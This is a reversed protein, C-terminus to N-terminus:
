KHFEIIDLDNKLKDQQETSLEKNDIYQLILEKLFHDKMDLLFGYDQGDAYGYEEFEQKVKSRIYKIYDKANLKIKRKKSELNNDFYFISDMVNLFLLTDICFAQYPDANWSPQENTTSYLINAIRIDIDTHNRYEIIMSDLDTHSLLITQSGQNLSDQTQSSKVKNSDCAILLILAVCYIWKYYKM